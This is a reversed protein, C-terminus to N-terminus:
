PTHTKRFTQAQTQIAKRITPRSIGTVRAIAHQSLGQGHFEVIKLRDADSLSRRTNLAQERGTAWRVNGPEYNGDNDIRDISHRSSPARGVDKLFAEYSNRWRECVSIGRGGYDPWCRLKRNTCRTIMSAWARYEKTRKGGASAEGHTTTRNTTYKQCGCSTMRKANSKLVVSQKGCDCLIRVVKALQPGRPGSM